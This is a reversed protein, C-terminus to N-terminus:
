RSQEAKEQFTLFDAAVVQAAEAVNNIQDVVCEKIKDTGFQVLTADKVQSEFTSYMDYDASGVCRQYATQSVKVHVIGMFTSISELMSFQDRITPTSTLCCPTPFNTVIFTGMPNASTQLAETFLEKWLPAPVADPADATYAAKALKDELASGHGGAKFLTTSDIITFKAAKKGERRSTCIANAIISSFDAKGSPAVLVYVKPLLKSRIQQHLADSTLNAAVVEAMNVSFVSPACKAKFEEM